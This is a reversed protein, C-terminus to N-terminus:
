IVGQLHLADVDKQQLHLLRTLIDRTHQGLQPAPGRPKPQTASMKIPNGLLTVKGMRPHLEEMFMQRDIVIHPDEVVDKISYIPAAPVGAANLLDVLEKVHRTCTWAEILLKLQYHHKVRQPNTAFRHLEDVNSFHLVNVFRNWITDNAIGIIVWGDSARFSDYPYIFEYRNGIRHPPEGSVFYQQPINELSAVVSDVLAVDILQGEGTQDRIRLAALIGVCCFLASLVDAIATGTRTPPSDPWGTIALLGGMAQGIIDYGPRDKYRGTRGFGSIAAYILRPNEKKLQDYGIGLREMTGPRFNEMLVDCQAILRRFLQKGKQQKLNITISRKGRNLNAYYLSENQQFPPFQRSDDGLNPIELKIVDAGLDALLMSCYPGALVRTLDLVRIDHLDYGTLNSNDVV